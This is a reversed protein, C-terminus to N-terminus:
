PARSAQGGRSRGKVIKGRHCISAGLSPASDSSYSGAEMVAVAVSAGLQM